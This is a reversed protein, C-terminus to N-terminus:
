EIYKSIINESVHTYYTYAKWKQPNQVKHNIGAVMASYGVYLVTCLLVYLTCYMRFVYLVCYM